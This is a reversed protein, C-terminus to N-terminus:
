KKRRETATKQKHVEKPLLQMNSPKDAGGKSLPVVHDVEYGRPLTKFGQSKLFDRKASESREVKPLGTSKYREGSIYKTGGIDYTQKKPAAYSKYSPVKYSPTSKYTSRPSSSTRRQGFTESGLLFISLLVAVIITFRKM